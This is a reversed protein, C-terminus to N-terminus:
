VLWGIIDNVSKPLITKCTTKFWFHKIFAFTSITGNICTNQERRQLLFVTKTNLPKSWITGTDCSRLCLNYLPPIVAKRWNGMTRSRKWYIPVMSTGRGLLRTSITAAMLFILTPVTGNNMNVRPWNVGFYYKSHYSIGTNAIRYSRDTQKISFFSIREIIKMLTTKWYSKLSFPTLRLFTHRLTETSPTLIVCDLFCLTLFQWTIRRKTRKKDDGNQSTGDKSILLLNLYDTNKSNNEQVDKNYLLM